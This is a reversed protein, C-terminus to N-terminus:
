IHTRLKDMLNEFAVASEEDEGIVLITDDGAISGMIGDLVSADLAAAVAAASGTSAKVLVLNGTRRVEEVLDAVMRQLHLDESLVYFGEPQKRLGMESIDRSITAQTCEFGRARLEDVLSGQTRISMSRVIERIADQRDNRKKM